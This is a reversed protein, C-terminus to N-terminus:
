RSHGTQPSHTSVHAPGIPGLLIRATDTAHIKRSALALVTGLIGLKHPSHTSVDGARLSHTSVDPYSPIERRLFRAVAVYTPYVRAIEM